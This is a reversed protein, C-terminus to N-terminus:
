EWEADARSWGDVHDAFEVQAPEEETNQWQKLCSVGAVSLKCHKIGSCRDGDAAQPSRLDTSM